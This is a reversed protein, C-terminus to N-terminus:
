SVESEYKANLYATLVIEATEDSMSNDQKVANLLPLKRQEYAGDLNVLADNLEQKTYDPDGQLMSTVNQRTKALLEPDTIPKAM